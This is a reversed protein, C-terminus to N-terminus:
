KEGIQPLAARKINIGPVNGSQFKNCIKKLVTLFSLTQLVIEKAYNAKTKEFLGIMNGFKKAAAVRSKFYTAVENNTGDSIKIENIKSLTASVSLNPDNEVTLKKFDYVINAGELMERLSQGFTAATYAYTLFNKDIIFKSTAESQMGRILEQIKNIAPPLIENLQETVSEIKDVGPYDKKFSEIDSYKSLKDSTIEGFDLVDVKGHSFEIKDMITKGIRDINSVSYNKIFDSDKGNHNLMDSIFATYAKNLAEMETLGSFDTKSLEAWNIDIQKLEEVKEEVSKANSVVQDEVSSILRYIGYSVAAIGAVAAAGIGIAKWNVEEMAIDILKLESGAGFSELAELSMSGEIFGNNNVLTIADQKLSMTEDGHTIQHRIVGLASYSEMAAQELACDALHRLEAIRLIKNEM